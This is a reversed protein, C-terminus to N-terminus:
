IDEKVRVFLKIILPKEHQKEQMTDTKFLEQGEQHLFRSPEISRSKLGTGVIKASGFACKKLLDM